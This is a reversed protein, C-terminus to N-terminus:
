KGPLVWVPDFPAHTYIMGDVARRLLLLGPGDDAQQLRRTGLIAVAQRFNQKEFATLAEEYETRAQLWGPRDPLALEYLDVPEEINVVRVTCLRRLAFSSDLHAQTAATILLSCKLYKTAGQVRSALNVTNGLPGYKFKWKSGTNGVRAPGTNIGVGLAMPEGLVSEWRQNLEPLAAVMALAARCAQKAHGSGLEPAGWMAMVEDGIYDVVVGREALVCGSLTEMVEGIWAVTRGPGLRESIRSFGRIDCFLITVECDRGELMDPQDALHRALEPTFFQEFQVRAALAAQEQQQRALGAGVGSAILEVLRAQLEGVPEQGLDSGQRSDGYLVAIVEGEPDLIPAAVVTRIAMLSASAPPAEWFTRKQECLRKLITRSVDWLATQVLRPARYVAEVKWDDPGRILIRGCELGVVEVLARPARAFFDSSSAASLLVEMTAQLWGLIESTDISGSRARALTPFLSTMPGDQRPPLTAEPLSLVGSETDPEPAAKPAAAQGLEIGWRDVSFVVPVEAEASCGPGLETGDAFFVPLVRSLNEILAQGDSMPTLLVHKRSVSSENIGAIVLRRRGGDETCAFPGGEGQAQRGLEVPGALAASHLLQEGEYIRIQWRDNMLVM